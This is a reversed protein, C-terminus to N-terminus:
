DCRAVQNKGCKKAKYLAKDAANILKEASTHNPDAQCVGISVTVSGWGFNLHEISKRLREAVRYANDIHANPMIVAIEEGGYRAAIDMDRINELVTAGIEKLVKDGALHGHKDNVIKFDDIDIMLLCLQSGSRRLEDVEKALIVDFVDRVFLNTLENKISTSSIFASKEESIVVPSTMSDRINSLYDMAAVAIGVYRGLTRSVNHLHHRIELWLKQAQKESYKEHTLTLLISSYLTEGYKKEAELQATEDIVIREIEDMTISTAELEVIESIEQINGKDEMNAVQQYIKENINHM